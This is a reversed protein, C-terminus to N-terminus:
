TMDSARLRGSIELCSPKTGFDYLLLLRLTLISFFRRLNNFIYVNSDYFM